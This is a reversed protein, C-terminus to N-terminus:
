AVKFEFKEGALKYHENGGEGQDQDSETCIVFYTGPKLDIEVFASTGPKIASIGGQFVGAIEEVKAKGQFYSDVLATTQDFTKGPAPAVVTFDHNKTGANTVKLIAKGSSLDPVTLKGETLTVEGTATPAPATTAADNVKLENVMGAAFHPKGDPTPFFCVLAYSGPKFDVWSATKSGATLVQPTGFPGANPDAFTPLVAKDDEEGETQLAAVVDKLAKGPAILGIALMHADKGGNAFTIKATGSDVAPKDLTYGYDVGTITVANEAPPTPAASTAAATPQADTDVDSGDDGCATLGAMAALAIGMAATTRRLRMHM